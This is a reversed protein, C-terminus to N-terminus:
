YKICCGYYGEVDDYRDEFVLGLPHPEPYIIAAGKCGSINFHYWAGIRREPLFDEDIAFAVPKTRDLENLMKLTLEYVEETTILWTLPGMGNGKHYSFIEIGRKYIELDSVRKTQPTTRAYRAERVTRVRKSRRPCEKTYLPM